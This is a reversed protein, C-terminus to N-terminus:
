RNFVVKHKKEQGIPDLGLLLVNTFWIEKWDLAAAMKSIGGLIAGYGPRPGVSDDQKSYFYQLKALVQSTEM